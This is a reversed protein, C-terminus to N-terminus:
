ICNQAIKAIRVGRVPDSPMSAPSSSSGLLEFDLVVFASWDCFIDGSVPGLNVAYSGEPHLRSRRGIEFYKIGRSELYKQVDARPTGLPLDHEYPAM